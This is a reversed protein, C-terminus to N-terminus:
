AMQSRLKEHLEPNEKGFISEQTASMKKLDSLTTGAGGGGKNKGGGAGGGSAKSGKIITAFEEKARFEEKLDDISMASLEGKADVVRTVYDDGDQEVRLRAKVHPLLAPAAKDVALDNAIDSAVKDKFHKNISKQAVDMKSDSEAKQTDLKDRWSKELTEIDGRKRADDTSVADLKEQLEKTQAEADKRAQKERDKARRLEAPDNEPLLEPPKAPIRVYEGDTELFLEKLGEPLGDYQEKTLNKLTSGKKESLV